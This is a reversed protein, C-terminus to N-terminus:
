LMFVSLVIVLNTTIILVANQEKKTGNGWNEAALEM